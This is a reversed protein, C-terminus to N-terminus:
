AAQLLFEVKVAEFPFVIAGSETRDLVGAALLVTVDTHVAKVDREVRRAAERISVPGAGCLAKLLEWRKATLVKWLLEPSAFSIRATKEAKGSRWAQAFGAMAEKPPRVELTVIKVIGGRLIVNSTLSCRKLPPSLTNARGPVLTVTIGREQRTTTDCSAFVKSSTPWVTNTNTTRVKSLFRSEGCFWSRFRM